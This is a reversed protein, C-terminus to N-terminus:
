SRRNDRNVYVAVHHEEVTYVATQARVRKYVEDPFQKWGDVGFLEQLKENSLTHPIVKIPLDELDEERKGKRKRRSVQIVDEEVPEVVYIIETLAKTPNFILEM